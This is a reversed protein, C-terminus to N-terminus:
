FEVRDVNMNENEKADHKKKISYSRCFILYNIIREVMETNVLWILM